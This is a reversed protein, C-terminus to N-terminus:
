ICSWRHVMCVVPKRHKTSCGVRNPRNLDMKPCLLKLKRPATSVVPVEYRAATKKIQHFIGHIYPIVAPRFKKCQPKGNRECNKKIDKLISEAVGLIVSEPYGANELRVVQRTLAETLMHECSKKVLTGLCIARKVIKFHASDYPLLVKQGGPRTKM